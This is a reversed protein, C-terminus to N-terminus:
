SLNKSKVMADILAQCFSAADPTAFKKAIRKAEAIIIPVALKKEFVLEYCSLRLVALEVKQIRHFDYSTSVATIEADIDPLLKLLAEVRNWAHEVQKKGVKLEHSVTEFLDDIDSAHSDTSFLLLFMLERLKQPPMDSTKTM